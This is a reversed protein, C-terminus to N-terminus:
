RAVTLKKLTQLYNQAVTDVERPQQMMQLYTIEESRWLLFVEDSQIGLKAKANELETTLTEINELAQKYNKKIFNGIM